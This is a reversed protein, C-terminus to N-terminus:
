WPGSHLGVPPFFYMLPCQHCFAARYLSSLHVCPTKGEQIEFLLLSFVVSVKFISGNACMNEPSKRKRVHGHRHHKREIDGDEELFTLTPRSALTLM